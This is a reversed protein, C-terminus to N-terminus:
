GLRGMVNGTLEDYLSIWASIENELTWAQRVFSFGRKSYEEQLVVNSIITNIAEALDVVNGPEVVIGARSADLVDGIAGARTGVIPVGLAMGELLVNPCGDHLSPIALVALSNYEQITEEYSLEGTVKINLGKREYNRLLNSWYPEEDLAFSGILRVEVPMILRECAALLIDVGKKRRHRGVCGVVPLQRSGKDRPIPLEKSDRLDISNWIVRSIGSINAIVHGRRQLESGVFTVSHAHEFTWRIYEFQEGRFLRKHLDDGRVSAIFTIGAEYAVLGALFSHVGIFFSQLFDFRRQIAFSTLWEFYATTLEPRTKAGRIPSYLEYVEISNDWRTHISSVSEEVPVVIEPMVVITVFFGRASLGHAIRHVSRGLGGFQPPYEPTIICISPKTSTSM